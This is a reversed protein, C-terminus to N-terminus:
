LDLDIEDLEDAVSEEIMWTNGRLSEEIFHKGRVGPHVVFQFNLEDMRSVEDPGFPLSDYGDLPIVYGSGDPANITARTKDSARTSTGYEHYKVLDSTSGIFHRNWGASEYRITRADEPPVHRKARVQADPVIGNQVAKSIGAAIRQKPDFRGEPSVFQGDSGRPTRQQRTREFREALENLKDALEEFDRGWTM